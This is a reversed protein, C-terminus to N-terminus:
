PVPIPIPVRRVILRSIYALIAPIEDPGPTLVLLLAILAALTFELLGPYCVCHCPGGPFDAITGLNLCVGGPYDLNYCANSCGKDVCSRGVKLCIEPAIWANEFLSFMEQITKPPNGREMREAVGKVFGSKQLAKKNKKLVNDIAGILPGNKGHTGILALRHLHPILADPYRCDLIMLHSPLVFTSACPASGPAALPDAVAAALAGPAALAAMGAGLFRLLHRRDLSNADGAGAPPQSPHTLISSQSM